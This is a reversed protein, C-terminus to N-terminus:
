GVTKWKGRIFCTKGYRKYSEGDIWITKKYHRCQRISVKSYRNPYYYRDRHRYRDRYYHRDSLRETQAYRYGYRAPRAYRYERRDMSEGVSSGVVAGAITGVLTTAANDRGVGIQSGIIGGTLAGLLAGGQQNNMGLAIPCTFLVMLLLVPKIFDTRM